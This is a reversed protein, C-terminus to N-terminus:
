RGRALIPHPAFQQIQQAFAAFAEARQDGVGAVRVDHRRQGVVLRGDGIQQRRQIGAHHGQGAGIGYLGNLAGEGQEVGGAHAAPSNQEDGVADGGAVALGDGPAQEVLGTLKQHQAHAGRDARGDGQGAAAEQAALGALDDHRLEVFLRQALQRPAAAAAVLCQAHVVAVQLRQERIPAKDVLFVGDVPIPAGIAPLVHGVPQNQGQQQDGQAAKAAAPNIQERQPERDQGGFAGAGQVPVIQPPAFVLLPPAGEFRAVGFASCCQKGVRAPAAGGGVRRLIVVGGALGKRAVFRRVAPIVAAIGQGGTAVVLLGDAGVFLRQLEFGILVVRAVVDFGKFASLLLLLLLILLLLLLLLM